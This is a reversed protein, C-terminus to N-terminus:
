QGDVRATARWRRQRRGAQAVGDPRGVALQQGALVTLLVAENTSRADVLSPFEDHRLLPNRINKLYNAQVKGMQKDAQAEMRHRVRAAAHSGAIQEAQAKSEYVRDTAVRQAIGSNAGVGLIQTRTTATATAPYSSLGNADVAIRKRAKLRLRATATFRPRGTIALRIPRPRARSRRKSSRRQDSKLPQGEVKAVTHATGSIATGLINDTIPGTEDVTQEMGKAILRGSIHAHINPTSYRQRIVSVLPEALQMSELWGLDTGIADAQESTKAADYEKLKDALSKLHAIYKPQLDDGRASLLTVYAELAKRVHSFVPMELGNSDESYLQDISELTEVDPKPVALQAQLDKWRLFERWGKAVAPNANLYRDLKAMAAQLEAKATAVDAGGFPVFTAESQALADALSPAKAVVVADPWQRLAARLKAFPELELGPVDAALLRIYPAAVKPDASDGKDLEAKLAPM